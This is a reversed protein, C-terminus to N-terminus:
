YKARYYIYKIIENQFDIVGAEHEWWNDADYELPKHADIVARAEVSALSRNLIWRQRRSPFFETPVIIKHAGSNKAWMALARSEEFTNSVVSIGFTEIAADPVGLKLLVARNLDAHTPIIELKEIPSLKTNAVLIRNAFGKKYLEAALFPRQDLGGGLVAIADAPELPDSVIWLAASERLIPTRETWAAIVLLFIIGLFVLLTRRRSRRIFRASGTM